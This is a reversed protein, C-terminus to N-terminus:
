SYVDLCLNKQQLNPNLESLGKESELPKNPLYKLTLGVGSGRKVTGLDGGGGGGGNGMALFASFPLCFSTLARNLTKFLDATFIKRVGLFLPRYIM